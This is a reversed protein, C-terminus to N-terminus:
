VLRLELKRLGHSGLSTVLKELLSPVVADPIDGKSTHLLVLKEAAIM